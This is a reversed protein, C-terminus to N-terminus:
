GVATSSSLQFRSEGDYKYIGYHASQPDGNSDLTIKGTVGDYDIDTQTKLVDLCEGYSLCKIGKESVSQLAQAVSAGSDDKTSSAALAALITADYAEAAYRYDTVNPDAAKVRAKFADDAVAGGLIGNVGTLAGNPM